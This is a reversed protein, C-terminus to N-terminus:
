GVDIKTTGCYYKLKHFLGHIDQLLYERGKLAVVEHAIKAISINTLNTEEWGQISKLLRAM